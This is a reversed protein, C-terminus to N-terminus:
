GHMHLSDWHWFYVVAGISCALFVCQVVTWAVFEQRTKRSITIIGHILMLGLIVFAAVHEFAQRQPWANYGGPIVSFALAKAAILPGLYVMACQAAFRSDGAEVAFGYLPALSAWIAGALIWLGAFIGIRYRIPFTTNM